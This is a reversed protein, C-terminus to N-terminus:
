VASKQTRYWAITRRLGERFDTTARFGFEDRARSTDLSRRPQGDPKTPDFVLRGSFGTLEVILAALARISIEFGAGINVPEPRDYRELALVIAEACDEVYLFERTANGTGWCMIEPSGLEIAEVCKRILAPIVHSSAPNFNDHPGYLNVPLLHIVNFGYQQRYAQGQVLLMKKAIGYPANTEEPYGNWLDRELFPVPALKPYACITGIGVFKKVGSLRAREMTMAGMMVNEYFFRGPSERNAGIGGVVAALHIVVQPALDDFMRRVDAEVTLDYDARRPTLVDRYGRRSLASAVHRGLFGNGGTVLVRSRGGSSAPSVDGSRVPRGGRAAGRRAGTRSYPPGPRDCGHEDAPFLRASRRADARDARERQVIHQAADARRHAHRVGQDVVLVASEVPPEGDAPPGLRRCAHHGPRDHAEGAPDSVCAAHVSRDRRRRLLRAGGGRSHLTRVAPLARSVQHAHQHDRAHRRPASGRPHQSQRPRPRGVGDSGSVVGGRPRGRNTAGDVARGGRHRRASAVRVRVGRDGSARPRAGVRDGRRQVRTGLLRAGDRLPAGRALSSALGRVGGRAGHRQRRGCASHLRGHLGHAGQDQRQRRQEDRLRRRPLTTDM